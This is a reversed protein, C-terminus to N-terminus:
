TENHAGTQEALPLEGNADLWKQLEAVAVLTKRGRRICRVEPMVYERFHDEGVDLAAAASRPTLALAPVATRLKKV